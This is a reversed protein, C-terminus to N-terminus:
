GSLAHLLANDAHLVGSNAGFFHIETLWSLWTLPHWNSHYFTEFAWAVSHAGLGEALQPATLYVDDDYNVIGFGSVPLYIALALAFPLVAAALHRTSARM